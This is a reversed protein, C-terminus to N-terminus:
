EHAKIFDFRERLAPPLAAEMEPTILGVDLMDRVHTMDKFRHSTLKMLLIDPIPAVCINDIREPQGIEPVATLYTPRVKEGAFVFRVASRSNPRDRDLLMDIGDAHRFQFGHKDVFESIKTVDPRDICIDIDRTLRAHMHDIRDVHMYVALGGALQYRIGAEDLLAAARRLVEFLQDVREEFFTNILM